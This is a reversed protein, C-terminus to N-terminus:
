VEPMALEVPWTRQTNQQMFNLGFTITRATCKVSKWDYWESGIKDSRVFSSPYAYMCMYLETGTTYMTGKGGNEFVHNM